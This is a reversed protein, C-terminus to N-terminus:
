PKKLLKFEQRSRFFCLKQRQQFHHKKGTNRIFLNVWATKFINPVSYGHVGIKVCVKNKRPGTVSKKGKVVERRQGEQLWCFLVEPFFVWVCIQYEFYYIFKKWEQISLSDKHNGCATLPISGACINNLIREQHKKEVEPRLLLLPQPPTYSSSFWMEASSFCWVYTIHCVRWLTLFCLTVRSYNRILSLIMRSNLLQEAFVLLSAKSVLICPILCAFSQIGWGTFCEDATKMQRQLSCM